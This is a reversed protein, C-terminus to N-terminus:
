AGSKDHWSVQPNALFEYDYIVGGGKQYRALVDQTV